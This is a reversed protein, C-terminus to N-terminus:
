SIRRRGQDDYNQFYSDGFRALPMSLMLIAAAAGPYLVAQETANLGNDDIVLYGVEAGM